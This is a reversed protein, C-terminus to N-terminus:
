SSTTMNSPDVDIILSRRKDYIIMTTQPMATNSYCMPSEPWRVRLFKVLKELPCVLEQLWKLWKMANLLMNETKTLCSNMLSISM